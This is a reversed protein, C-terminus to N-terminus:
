PVLMEYAIYIVVLVVCAWGIRDIYRRLVHEMREGGWMIIGAVLFFRMGRGVLSILVFNLLNLMGVSGTNAMSEAHIMHPMRCNEIRFQHMSLQGLYVSHQLRREFHGEFLRCLRRRALRELRKEQGKSIVTHSIRASM